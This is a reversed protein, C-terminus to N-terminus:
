NGGRLQQRNDAQIAKQRANFDGEMFKIHKELLTKERGTSSEAQQYLSNIYSRLTDLHQHPTLSSSLASKIQNSVIAAKIDQQALAWQKELEMRDLELTREFLVFTQVDVGRNAAAHILQRDLRGKAQETMLREDMLSLEHQLKRQDFGHQMFIKHRVLSTEVLAIERQLLSQAVSTMHAVDEAYKKPANYGVKLLAVGAFLGAIGVFFAMSGEWGGFTSGIRWALIIGGVALLLVILGAGYMTNQNTRVVYLDDHKEKREQAKNGAKLAWVGVITFSISLLFFWFATM